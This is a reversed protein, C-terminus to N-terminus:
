DRVCRVSYGITKSNFATNVECSDFSLTRHYSYNTNYGTSSWWYGIDGMYFWGNAYRGGAPLGTFGAANTACTSTGAAMLKAAAVEPGGLAGILEDWEDTGPVHWDTPCVNRPDSVAYWNYLKGYPINNAAEDGYYTFAGATQSVWELDDSVNPLSAGNSYHATRLNEAMWEQGGVQVTQYSNGDIDTVSGVTIVVACAELTGANFVAGAFTMPVPDGHSLHLQDYATLTTAQACTLFTFIGSTCFYVLGDAEVDGAAVPAHDCGTVTGTVTTLNPVAVALTPLVADASFPGISQEHVQVYNLGPCQLVIRLTFVENVPVQGGFDGTTSTLTEASGLMGSTLQVHAGQVANGQADTVHGSLQVFDTPADCNWWSFHAVHAVYSGGELTATGESVWYGLEENFYWLDITPSAGSLQSPALPMRVEATTGPALQVRSGADDTLEVAVMGFSVLRQAAGNQAGLLMGPMESGLTTSAPDIHNMAVNVIGSYAAGDRTFAGASFIITTGESTVSGGSAAPITGATTRSLLTIRVLQTGDTPLFSRSGNFYGPKSVKVYGLREYAAIPGLAFVGNADTLTTTGGYGATVTAGAVPQGAEDYVRGAVTTQIASGMPILHQADHGGAVPGATPETAEKSCSQLLLAIVLLVILHSRQMM